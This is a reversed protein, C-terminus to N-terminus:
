GPLQKLLMNVFLRREGGFAHAVDIAYRLDHPADAPRVISDQTPLVVVEAPTGIGIESVVVITCAIIVEGVMLEADDREDVARGRHQLADAVVGIPLGPVM